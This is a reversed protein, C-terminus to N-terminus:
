RQTPKLRAEARGSCFPCRPGAFSFFTEDWSIRSCPKYKGQVPFSSIRCRGSRPCRFCSPSERDTRDHPNHRRPSKAPRRAPTAPRYSNGVGGPAENRVSCSEEATRRPTRTSVIRHAAAKPEHAHPQPRGAKRSFFCAEMGPGWRRPVPLM